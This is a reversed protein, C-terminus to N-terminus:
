PNCHFDKKQTAADRLTPLASFFIAASLGVRRLFRLAWIIIMIEFCIKKNKNLLM